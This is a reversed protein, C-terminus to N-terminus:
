RPWCRSSPKVRVRALSSVNTSIRPFAETTSVQEVGVRGDAARASELVVVGDVPDVDGVGAETPHADVGQAVARQAQPDGGVEDLLGLDLRRAELRLAPLGAPPDDVHDGCHLL